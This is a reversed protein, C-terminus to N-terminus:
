TVRAGAGYEIELGSRLFVHHHASGIRAAKRNLRTKLMATRSPSSMMEPVVPGLSRKPVAPGSLM